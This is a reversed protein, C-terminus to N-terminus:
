KPSVEIRCIRPWGEQDRVQWRQSFWQTPQGPVTWGVELHVQFGGSVSEVQVNRLEHNSSPFRERLPKWWAEFQEASALSADPYSLRWGTPDLLSLFCATDQGRDFLSFWQYVLARVQNPSSAVVPPPGSSGRFDERTPTFCEVLVVRRTLPRLGHHVNSPAVYASGPGVRRQEDGVRVEAEGEVLMTIQDHMHYHTLLVPQEPAPDLELWVMTLRDNFLVKRRQGPAVEQWPVTDFLKPQVKRLPTLWRYDRPSQREDTLLWQAQVPLGLGLLLCLSLSLKM